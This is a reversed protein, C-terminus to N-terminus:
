PMLGPRRRCSSAMRPEERPLIPLQASEDQRDTLQSAIPELCSVGGGAPGCPAEVVDADARLAQQVLPDIGSAPPEAAAGRRTAARALFAAILPSQCATPAVLGSVGAQEAAARM